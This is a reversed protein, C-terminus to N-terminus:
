QEQDPTDASGSPYPQKSTTPGNIYLTGDSRFGMRDINIMRIGGPASVDHHSHYVCFLEKGDPSEAVCHHGPGSVAGFRSSFIPNSAYKVFPGTPADSVAYGIAYRETAYSNASYMLYYKGAHKVVCAGENWFQTRGPLHEWSQEPFAVMVAQGETGSLDDRLRVVWIESRHENETGEVPNTAMANSYYLYMQGDSDTFIHSDICGKDAAHSYFPTDAVDTFPGLPSDAAALGIRKIKGADEASYHLYYRGNVRIMEPAWFSGKKRAWRIGDGTFVKGRYTWNVLDRSSFAPFGKGTVFLYYTGDTDRFVFPDAMSNINTGDFTGPELVPNLYQKVTPDSPEVPPDQPENPNPVPANESGCAALAIMCLVPFLLKKM